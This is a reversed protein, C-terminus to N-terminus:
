KKYILVEYTVKMNALLPCDLYWRASNPNVTVNIGYQAENRPSVVRASIIKVEDALLGTSIRGAPDAVDTFQKTYIKENLESIDSKNKSVIDGLTIETWHSETFQEAVDINKNSEYLKNNQICIAGKMYTSNEDYPNATMNRGATDELMSDLGGFNFCNTNEM